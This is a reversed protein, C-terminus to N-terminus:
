KTEKSSKKKKPKNIEIEVEKSVALNSWCDICYGNMYVFKKIEKCSICRKRNDIM